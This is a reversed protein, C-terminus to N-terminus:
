KSVSLALWGDLLSGALEEEFDVLLLRWPVSNQFGTFVPM